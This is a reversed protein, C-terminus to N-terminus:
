AKAQERFAALRAASAARNEDSITRPWCLKVCGVPVTARIGDQDVKELSIGHQRCFKTLRRKFTTSCTYVDWGEEDDCRGIITEQEDRGLSRSM